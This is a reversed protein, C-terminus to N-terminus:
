SESQQLTAHPADDFRKVDEADHDGLLAMATELLVASPSRGLSVGSADFERWLQVLLTKARVEPAVPLEPLALSDTM